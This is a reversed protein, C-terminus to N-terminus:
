EGLNWDLRQFSCFQYIMDFILILCFFVIIWIFRIVCNFFTVNFVIWKIRVFNNNFFMWTPFNDLKAPFKASTEVESSILKWYNQLEFFNISNFFYIKELQLHQIFSYLSYLFILKRLIRKLLLTHINNWFYKVDRINECILSWWLM